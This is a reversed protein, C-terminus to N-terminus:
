IPISTPSLEPASLRQRTLREILEPLAGQPEWSLEERSRRIVALIQPRSYRPAFEDALRAITNAQYDNLMTSM